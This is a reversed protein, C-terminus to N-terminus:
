RLGKECLFKGYQRDEVLIHQFLWDRLFVAMEDALVKADRDQIQKRYDFVKQRLGAHAAIHAEAHPYAWDDFYMEEHRFHMLTYEVLSDCVRQLDAAVAGAEVAQHLQNIIAIMKKHEDDFIAVGVSYDKTWEMFAM